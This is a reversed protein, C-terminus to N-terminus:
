LHETNGVCVELSKPAQLETFQGELVSGASPVTRKLTFAVWVTIM